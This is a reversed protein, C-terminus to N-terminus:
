NGVEERLWENFVRVKKLSASEPRFISYYADNTSVSENSLKVLTGEALESAVLCKPAALVGLGGVAARIALYTHEFHLSPSDEVLVKDIASRSWVQWLEPRSDAVIRSLGNDDSGDGGSDRKKLVRPACVAVLEEEMILQDDLDDSRAHGRSLFIDVDERILNVPTLSTTIRVDIGEYRSQFTHLRPILWQLAFTPLSLRIALVDKESGRRVDKTVTTIIDFVSKIGNFYRAGGDTLSMNRRRRVFLKLGLFEELNRVQHSIASTTLCLEDAARTFSLHRAAAEFARLSTLPPMNTNWHGTNERKDSRM